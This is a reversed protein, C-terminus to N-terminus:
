GQFRQKFGAGATAESADDRGLDVLPIQTESGRIEAPGSIAWRYGAEIDHQLEQMASASDANMYRHALTPTFDSSLLRSRAEADTRIDFTVTEPVDHAPTWATVLELPGMSAYIGM